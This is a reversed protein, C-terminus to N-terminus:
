GNLMNGEYPTMQFKNVYFLQGFSVFPFIACYFTVCVFCVLWLTLPFQLIEKPTILVKDPPPPLAEVNRKKASRVEYDYLRDIYKDRRRDFWWLAFGCAVSLACM